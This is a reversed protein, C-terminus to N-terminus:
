MTPLDPRNRKVLGNSHLCSTPNAEAFSAKNNYLTTFHKRSLHDLDDNNNYTIQSYFVNQSEHLLTHQQWYQKCQSLLNHTKENKRRGFMVDTKIRKACCMSCVTLSVFMALQADKNLKTWLCYISGLLMTYYCVCVWINGSPTHCVFMIRSRLDTTGCESVCM